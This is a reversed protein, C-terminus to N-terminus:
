FTYINSPDVLHGREFKIGESALLRMKRRIEPGERHGAFGGITLDTRIVRHCPVKPAFPNGKLAQGIAQNSGCSISKAVLKYTTLKGCPVRSIADYVSREFPTVRSADKKIIQCRM